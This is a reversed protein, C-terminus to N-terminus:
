DVAPSPPPKTGLREAALPRVRPWELVFWPTFREPTAALEADLDAPTVWRIDGIELPNPRPRKNSSGAYVRCVERESGLDGYRAHYSFTFLHELDATLGLEEDLRRRTAEAMTEGRRPHSCCSNSWFGPWLRKDEARRQLLLRGEADFIFISFARHLVGEGNHCAGKALFGIERDAEDVLILEEDESSVVRFAPDAPRDAM